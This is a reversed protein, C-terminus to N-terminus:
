WRILWELAIASWSQPVRFAAHGQFEGELQDAVDEVPLHIQRQHFAKLHQRAVLRLFPDHPQQIRGESVVRGRAASTRLGPHEGGGPRVAPPVSVPPLLAPQGHSSLGGEVKAYIKLGQLRAEGYGPPEILYRPDASLQDRVWGYRNSALFRELCARVPEMLEAPEPAARLGYHVEMLRTQALERTLTLEMRAWFRQVDIEASTKLLRKLLAALVDHM